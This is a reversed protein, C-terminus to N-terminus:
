NSAQTFVRAKNKGKRPMLYFVFGAVTRIGGHWDDGDATTAFPAAEFFLGANQFSFPFAEIGIPCVLGLENGNINNWDTRFGIGTHMRVKEYYVVRYLVSAETIFTSPKPATYFNAKTIRAEFSLKHNKYTRIGLGTETGTPYIGIGIRNINTEDLIMHKQGILKGCVFFFLFVILAERM